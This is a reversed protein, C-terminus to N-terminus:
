LGNAKFQWGMFKKKKAASLREIAYRLMTRPMKGSHRLLFKELEGQDKKGVERLMWGVSKHILDHKDRMLLESIKFTDAFQGRRIFALTAVIAIRRKWLNHSHAFFYLVAKNRHLLYNGLIQPASLDVLDWNNVGQLNALYFHVIERQAAKNNEKEAKQFLQVLAILAALRHEHIKSRLLRQLRPFSLYQNKEAIKRLQPVTIGIFVDGEGYHGKGTKFFGQLIKAKTPNAHKKLEQLIQM